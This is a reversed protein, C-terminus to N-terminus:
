SEVVKIESDKCTHATDVEGSGHIESSDNAIEVHPEGSDHNENERMHKWRRAQWFTANFGHNSLGTSVSASWQM